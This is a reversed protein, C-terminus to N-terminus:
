IHISLTSGARMPSAAAPVRSNMFGNKNNFDSNDAFASKWEPVATRAGQQQPQAGSGNSSSDMGGNFNTTAAASVESARPDHNAPTTFSVSHLEVNHQQLYQHLAPAATAIETIAGTISAHLAGNRIEARIGVNGLMPDNVAVELHRVAPMAQPVTTADDALSSAQVADHVTNHTIAHSPQTAEQLSFRFGAGAPAASQLAADAGLLHPRQAAAANTIKDALLSSGEGGQEDEDEGTEATVKTAATMVKAPDAQVSGASGQSVANGIGVTTTANKATVAKVLSHKTDSGSKQAVDKITIDPVNLAAVQDV